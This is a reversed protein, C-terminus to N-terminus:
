PGCMFGCDRHVGCSGYYRHVGNSGMTEITWISMTEISKVHTQPGRTFGYYRHIGRSRMTEIPGM